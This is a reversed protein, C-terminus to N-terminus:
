SIIIKSMYGEVFSNKLNSLTFNFWEFIRKKQIYLTEPFYFTEESGRCDPIHDLKMKQKKKKRRLM